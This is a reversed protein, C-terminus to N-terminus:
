TTAIHGSTLPTIFYCLRDNSTASTLTLLPLVPLHLLSFNM